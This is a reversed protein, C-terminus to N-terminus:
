LCGYVVNRLRPQYYEELPNLMHHAYFVALQREPDALVTAGAAGGWGFEGISGLSGGQAKDMMTRVGVGYGYGLYQAHRFQQLQKESLQNTQMLEISAPALIRAGNVGTGSGALACVFKSYDEVTTIVGAGGSDYEPGHIHSNQLPVPQVLGGEVAFGEMEASVEAAPVFRYQSAMNGEMEATAHYATKTMGLPGFVNEAMYDRFKKGSVVEVVAAIVDHCLSYQFSDGPEFSLPDEALCRAVTVTNMAGKTEERAKRFAPTGSNYTLGATMSVLHQLTVPNKAPALSGDPQRVQVNKWAPIYAYLPDSLLIQGREVLQLVATMTAPKSCSYIFYHEEGTMKKQAALDAYGSQYRFVEKGGICVRIDNGPIRWSTLHDMFNRLNTFDM